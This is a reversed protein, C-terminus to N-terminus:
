AGAERELVGADLLASRSARMSMITAALPPSRSSATSAAMKDPRGFASRGPANRLSRSILSRRGVKNRACSDLRSAPLMEITCPTVPEDRVKMPSSAAPMSAMRTACARMPAPCALDSKNAAGVVGFVEFDDQM